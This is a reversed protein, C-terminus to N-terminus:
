VVFFVGIFNKSDIEHQSNGATAVIHLPKYPNAFSNSTERWLFAQRVQRSGYFNLNSLTDIDQGCQDIHCLYM